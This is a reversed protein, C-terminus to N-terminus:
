CIETGKEKAPQGPRDHALPAHLGKRPEKEPPTKGELITLRERARGADGGSDTGGRETATTM